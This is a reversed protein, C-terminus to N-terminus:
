RGGISKYYTKLDQKVDQPLAHWRLGQIAGELACLKSLCAGDDQARIKLFAAKSGIKKLMEADKIGELRLQESLVNGINPLEKLETM